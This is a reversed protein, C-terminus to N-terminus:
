YTRNHWPASCPVLDAVTTPETGAPAVWVLFVLVWPKSSVEACIVYPVMWRDVCTHVCVSAPHSVLVNDQPRTSSIGRKATQGATAMRCHLWPPVPSATLRPLAPALSAPHIAHQFISSLPLSDSFLCADFEPSFILFTLYSLSSLHFTSTLIVVFKSWPPISIDIQFIIEHVCSSYKHHWLYLFVM